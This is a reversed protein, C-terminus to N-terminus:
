MWKLMLCGCWDCDLSWMSRIGERNLVCPWQSWRQRVDANVHVIKNLHGLTPLVGKTNSTVGVMLDILDESGVVSLINISLARYGDLLQFLPVVMPRGFLNDETPQHVGHGLGDLEWRMTLVPEVSEQIGHEAALSGRTM